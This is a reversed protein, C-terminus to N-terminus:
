YQLGKFWDEELAIERLPRLDWSAGLSAVDDAALVFRTPYSFPSALIKEHHRVILSQDPNGRVAVLPGTTTETFYRSIESLTTGNGDWSSAKFDALVSAILSKHNHNIEGNKYMREIRRILIPDAEEETRFYLVSLLSAPVRKIKSVIEASISRPLNRGAGSLSVIRQFTHVMKRIDHQELDDWGIAIRPLIKVLIDPDALSLAATYVAMRLSRSQPTQATADMWFGLDKTSLRAKRARSLVPADDDLFRSSRGPRFKGATAGILALEWCIWSKGFAMEAADIIQSLHMVFSQPGPDKTDSNAVKVFSNLPEIATTM